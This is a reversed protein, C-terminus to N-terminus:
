INDERNMQDEMRTCFANYIFGMVIALVILGFGYIISLNQKGVVHLKLLEPDILGVVVFGLYVLTYLYFLRVGLKSKRVAANDADPKIAPGHM